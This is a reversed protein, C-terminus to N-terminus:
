RPRSWWKRDAMSDSWFSLVVKVGSLLSFTTISMNLSMLLSTASQLRVQDMSARRGTPAHEM